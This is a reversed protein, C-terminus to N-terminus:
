LSRSSFDSDTKGDGACSGGTVKVAESTGRGEVYIWYEAGAGTVGPPCSRLNITHAGATGLDDSPKASWNCENVNVVVAPGSGQGDREMHSGCGANQGNRPGAMATESSGTQLGTGRVNLQWLSAAAVLGVVLLSIQLMWQLPGRTQAM